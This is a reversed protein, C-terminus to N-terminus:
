EMPTLMRAQKLEPQLVAYDQIKVLHIETQSINQMDQIYLYISKAYNNHGTAAFYPLMDKSVKLHLKLDSMREAKIFTMLLEVM